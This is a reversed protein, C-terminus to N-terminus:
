WDFNMVFDHEDFEMELDGDDLGGDGDGLQGLDDRRGDDGDGLQGVDDRRGNGGDGLQGVDDRRGNGGDGLQGVDGLRGNEGDGPQGVDGAPVLIEDGFLEPEILDMVVEDFDDVMDRFNVAGLGIRESRTLTGLPRGQIAIIAKLRSPLGGVFTGDPQRVGMIAKNLESTKCYRDDWTNIFYKLQDM